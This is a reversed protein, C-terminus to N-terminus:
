FNQGAIIVGKGTRIVGKGTLANGLMIAASTRLLMPFFEGKQKM